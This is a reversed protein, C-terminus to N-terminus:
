GHRPLRGDIPLLHQGGMGGASVQGALVPLMAEDLLASGRRVSGRHIAVIGETVLGLSVLTPSDFRQGLERVRRASVLASDMNGVELAENAELWILYAQEACEPQDDLLQRARSLWGSGVAANGRLIWSFGVGLANMAVRRPAM